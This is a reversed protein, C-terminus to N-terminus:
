LQERRITQDSHRRQFFSILIRPSRDAQAFVKELRNKQYTCIASKEKSVYTDEMRASFSTNRRQLSSLIAICGRGLREPIAQSNEYARRRWEPFAVVLSFYGLIYCVGGSDINRQRRKSCSMCTEFFRQRSQASNSRAGQHGALLLHFRRSAPSGIKQM